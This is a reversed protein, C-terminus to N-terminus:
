PSHARLVRKLWIPMRGRARQSTERPSSPDLSDGKRHLHVNSILRQISEESSKAEIRRLNM